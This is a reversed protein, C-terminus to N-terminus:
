HKGAGPAKDGGRKPVGNKRKQGVGPEKAIKYAARAKLDEGSGM